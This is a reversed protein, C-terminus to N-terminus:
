SIERHAQVLGHPARQLAITWVHKNSFLEEQMLDWVEGLEQSYPSAKNIYAQYLSM